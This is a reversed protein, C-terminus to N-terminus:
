RRRRGRTVRHMAEDASMIVASQLEVDDCSVCGLTSETNGSVRRDIVMVRCRGATITSVTCDGRRIKKNSEAASLVIAEARYM